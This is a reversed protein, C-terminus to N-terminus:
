RGTGRGRTRIREKCEILLSSPQTSGGSFRNKTSITSQENNRERKRLTKALVQAWEALGKVDESVQNHEIQRVWEDKETLPLKRVLQTCRCISLLKHRYNPWYLAFVAPQLADECREFGERDNEKINPWNTIHRLNADTVERPDHILIKGAREYDSPERTVCAIMDTVKDSLSGNM